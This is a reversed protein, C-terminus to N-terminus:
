AVQTRAAVREVLGDGAMQELRAEGLGHFGRYFPRERLTPPTVGALAPLALLTSRRGSLLGTTAQM